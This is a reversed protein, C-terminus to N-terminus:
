PVRLNMGRDVLVKRKDRDHALDIWDMGGWGTERHDMKNNLEWRPRSM